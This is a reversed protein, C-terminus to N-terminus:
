WCTLEHFLVQREERHGWCKTRSRSYELIQSMIKYTFAHRPVFEKRKGEKPRKVRMKTRRELDNKRRETQRLEEAKWKEWWRM